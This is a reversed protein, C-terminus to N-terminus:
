HGPDPTIPIIVKKIDFVDVEEGKRSLSDHKDNYPYEVGRGSFDRM